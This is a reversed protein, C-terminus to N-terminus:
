TSKKLWFSITFPSKGDIVNRSAKIGKTMSVAGDGVKADEGTIRTVTSGGMASITVDGVSNSYMNDANDFTWHQTLHDRCLGLATTTTGNSVVIQSVDDPAASYIADAFATSAFAFASMALAAGAYSLREDTLAGVIRPM